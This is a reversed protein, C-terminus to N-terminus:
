RQTSRTAREGYYLTAAFVVFALSILSVVLITEAPM